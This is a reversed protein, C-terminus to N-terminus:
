YRAEALTQFYYPGISVIFPSFRQCTETAYELQNVTAVFDALREVAEIGFVM